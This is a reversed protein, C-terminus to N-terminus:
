PLIVSRRRLRLRRLALAVAAVMASGIAADAVLPWPRVDDIGVIADTISVRGVPSLTPHDYLFALPWGGAVVRTSDLGPGVGEYRAWGRDPRQVVDGSALALMAGAALTGLTGRASM